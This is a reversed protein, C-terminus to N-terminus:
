ILQTFIEQGLFWALIYFRHYVVTVSASTLWPSKCPQDPPPFVGSAGQPHWCQWRFAKHPARGNCWRRGAKQTSCIERPIVSWQCSTDLPRDGEGGEHLLIVLWRRLSNRENWKCRTCQRNRATPAILAIIPMWVVTLCWSADEEVNEPCSITVWIFYGPELYTSRGSFSEWPIKYSVAPMGMGYMQLESIDM